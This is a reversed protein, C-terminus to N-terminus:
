RKGKKPEFGGESIIDSLAYLMTTLRHTKDHNLAEAVKEIDGYKRMLDVAYAKRMSHPTLNRKVRFLKSARKIDKYVAQRTRHRNPDTRHEFIYVEGCIDRLDRRLGESLRCKKKKKTKSECVTFSKTQLCVSPLSLVDDIRLGTELAVRCALRNHLTLAYLVHGLVDKEVFDSVM